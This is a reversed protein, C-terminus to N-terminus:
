YYLSGQKIGLRAAIDATSAGHFGKASFVSAAARIAALKQKQYRPTDPNKPKV